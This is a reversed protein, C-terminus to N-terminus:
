NIWLDTIPKLVMPIKEPFENMQKNNKSCLKRFHKIDLRSLSDAIGNDGTPVYKAYIRVNNVLCNLTLIRILVMCNRCKAAQNNVMNVAAQNDCYLVIRKNKHDKSWLCVSATLAYLEWQEYFWATKHYGGYGKSTSKAADTYWEMVEPTLVESYDIFPRSFSLPTKLFTLWVRLDALTDQSKKIHHHPRLNSHGSLMSYLRMTFPHGPVICRCFFNLLGCLKQVQLVTAKHKKNQEFKQILEIVTSIKEQPISVIQRVTDILFGLFTITTSSWFTKELAVPFKISECIQLFVRVQHDCLTKLLHLFWFNDLYNVPKKGTRKTQVFAIADSFAQFHACSISSGFPMCKDVFYYWLCDLPCKAKMVLFKWFRKSMPFHRFASSMDSKVCKCFHGEELCRRIAQYFEPYKVTCKHKLTNANVSMTGNKPYSLHFILRTKKGNDKPVLGIPSQIYHKFPIKLYPGAYRKQKVESMVKNWLETENGVQCFKLNPAVIQINEPGEYGLSFRNLFGDCLYEIKSQEYGVKTLISRLRGSDVPTYINQLDLNEFM